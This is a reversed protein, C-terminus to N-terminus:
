CIKREIRDRRQNSIFDLQSSCQLFNEIGNYQMHLYLHLPIDFGTLAPDHRVKLRIDDESLSDFYEELQMSEVHEEQSAKLSNKCVNELLLMGYLSRQQLYVVLEWRHCM